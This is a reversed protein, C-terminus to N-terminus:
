HQHNPEALRGLVFRLLAAIDESPECHRSRQGRVDLQDQRAGQGGRSARRADGGRHGQREGVGEGRDCAGCGHGQQLSDQPDRRTLGCQGIGHSPAAGTPRLTLRHHTRAGRHTHRLLSPSARSHRRAAAATARTQGRVLPHTIRPSGPRKGESGRWVQSDARMASASTSVIDRFSMFASIAFAPRLRSPQM